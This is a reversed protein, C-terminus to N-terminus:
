RRIFYISDIKNNNILVSVKSNGIFDNMSFDSAYQHPLSDLIQKIIEPVIINEYKKFFDLQKENICLTTDIYLQGKNNFLDSEVKQSYSNVVIFVLLIKLLQKKM